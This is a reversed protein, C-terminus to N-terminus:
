PRKGLPVPALAVAGHRAAPRRPPRLAPLLRTASSKVGFAGKSGALGYALAVRGPYLDVDDVSTVGHGSYLSISSPNVTNTEVGVVPLKTAKLGDLIGGELRATADAEAPDLSGPQQRTVIVADVGRPAGSASGLLTSEVSRFLPGGSVLARGVHKAVTSLIDGGAALGKIPTAGLRRGRLDGALAKLDPPENVVVYDQVQAGTPADPGVVQQIATRTPSDLGGFAIVAVRKGTLLGRVLGPYAAQDFAHERDLQQSLDSVQAQARDLDGRLSTELKKTTNSIVGQLGTGILIGVGLALFVAALSAVHYRSSYGV